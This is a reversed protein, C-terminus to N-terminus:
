ATVLLGFILVKPVDAYFCKKAVNRMQTIILTWSQLHYIKEFPLTPDM